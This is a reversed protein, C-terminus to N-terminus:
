TIIGELEFMNIIDYINDIKGGMITYLGKLDNDKVFVIPRGDDIENKIQLTKVEYLSEKYILDQLLPMYRVCDAQMLRFHSTPNRLFASLMTYPDDKSEYANWAIHPTYRVHSLSYCNRAPFPMLSFFSGDMLTISLNGLPPPVDVLAMETIEYKLPLSQIHSRHLLTNIGAYTCNFVLPAYFHVKQTQRLTHIAILHQMKHLSTAQTSLATHIKSDGIKAQLMKRLIDANFVYERVAFVDSVLSPNFMAKIHIPASEIFIDFQKFLRYFQTASTKSGIKAIAYYKTFDDKIAPAFETCFRKFARASSLATNLSRPYHYGNHVRAQNHFSARLLLHSEQEIILVKQYKRKLQLALYAGYFGGGIVICDYHQCM